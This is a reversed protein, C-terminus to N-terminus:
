GSVQTMHVLLARLNEAWEAITEPDFLDTSYEWNIRVDDGLAVVRVYLETRALGAVDVERVATSDLGDLKLEPPPTTVVTFLVPPFPREVLEPAVLGLVDVLPLDQHDLAAFLGASLDRVQQVFGGDGARFRVLVADGLMGVVREHDPRTRNASSTALVVDERDCRRCLWRAFATALVAYPTSGAEAALRSVGRVLEPPLVSEHTAGSGSLAPPRPRDAPLSPQVDVESLEARWFRTLEASREATLHARAWRAHDTHPVPALLDPERGARAAAYCEALEAWIVALSAGDCVIHHLVVVLVWSRPGRRGLRFRFLPAKDLAFPVAVIERCWHDVVDDDDHDSGAIPEVDLPIRFPALIEAVLDGGRDAVRMRLATHRHVLTEIARRLADTDLDGDLDVRHAVNYVTPNAQLGHRQWARRQAGSLPATDIVTDVITDSAGLHAALARITSHRFFDVMSCDKGLRDTIRNLLRVASLSHGGLAFFSRDVPVRTRGLDACWLEHLQRELPSEPEAGAVAMAAPDPLQDRDLKGNANVPLRDVVVWHNPVLQRPLVARLRQAVADADAGPELVAYAVLEPDGSPGTRAVVAADRVEPLEALAWETEGPEVRYGRIKVQDDRRGLFELTGDARWRGLDGTRYVRSGPRAPDAVFTAATEAPRGLYGDAVALGGLHIEGTAGVPVPRGADLVDVTVGDIPVGIPPRDAATPDVQQATVIISGETPGYQNVLACDPQHALFRRLAPTLVLPEGASVIMELDPLNPRSEMLYKLPTYPMFLREVRAARALEALAAPEHRVEEDVLVLSAGSALTSFIEQASVDFAPSTWQLTRLPRHQALQWRVVNAPGRHPVLVGKPRGTSGSTYICYALDDPGVSTSPRTAPGRAGAGPLSAATVVLKAGSDALVLDVRAEPLGPDIPLYAAGAKLVALLVTILDPGRDLRVAVLDGRRIGNALLWNALQNARDDLERYTVTSPGAVLATAEPTRDVQDEVLRHLCAPADRVEGRWRALDTRDADTPRTLESLPVAPEGTARRLVAELNALLRRVTGETFLDTDYEVAIRLGGVHRTLYLSLDFPARDAPVDLIAAALRPPDFEVSSENEYEVMVGFLPNRGPDRNPNLIGVLEDFPVGRHEYADTTTNRVRRALDVFGPDGSLDVRLPITDLYLGVLDNAERPRNRLATGLVIDDQGGFRGLVAAIAGLVAMFMTVGSRQAVDRLREVVEGDLENSFGAGAGTRNAPRPRDTPLELTAAGALHARWFAVDDEGATPDPDAFDPLAPLDDPEAPWSRYYAALDRVLVATSSSDFVIHHASLFLLHEEASLRVLRAAVLPGTALDFVERGTTRLAERLADAETGRSGDVLPCDVTARPLVTRYPEGGEDRFVTRLAPQREVVRALAGRLAAEDLPGTFRIAKPEHYITQNPYLRDLFWIRRQASTLPARREATAVRLEDLTPLAALVRDTPVGFDVFCAIEDAGAARLEAVVAACSEKTGILARTGCYRRYAQGLLFDVDEAPTNELDIEVGLSTTVQDFLSLSSRLYGCFPEFAEARVRDLDEGVYTHVLVVVRGPGLGREARTSRYRAINEALQEVSQSMLNTVIGLDNEAARRYSDPNGVVAVYMPPREQLPRPYLRVDVEDGSGSTATVSEGAWLRRVTDLHTYMLDRHRGFNEPALVFDKAHWGSAVCLGVRGGSLNDVVSWEEAVRVPHHLPLVVSGAHLRIRETQTALAAALVSPNPFLAGFSHFHREPLWVAHFGRRDAFRAAETILRYKDTQDQDPYDGFFYLSFDCGGPEDTLVSRASASTSTPTAPAPPSGTPAPLPTAPASPPTAPAPRTAPAAPAPPPAVATSSKSLAALQESMLATVQDVMKEALALQRDVTAQLDGGGPQVPASATAPDPAREAQDPASPAPEPPAAAQPQADEVPQQRRPGILAALKAPTDADDFLHRIPVRVGVSEDLERTLNMLSLSDGGMEVFTRDPDVAALDTGLLRATMRRVDDLVGDEVVGAGVVGAEAVAPFRQKRFPYGPLPIRRGDMPLAGWNVDVGRGYMTGVAGLFAGQRPLTPLWRGRAGRRGLRTLGDAPGIEVVDSRDVTSMVRDFRVPERAQRCLYDVDVRHGAPLVRGDLGSIMPLLLPRLEVAQRALEAAAPEILSSHFARDAGLRVCAVRRAGALEVARAVADPPGSLACVDPANVAALETGSDAAIRGAVAEGANVVVMGGPETARMAAGRAATIRLGDVLSLAGAAYLAGYEGLSHGAVVAPEVGVSRWLEVLAAQFAFLAPQVDRVEDGRLQDLLGPLVNECEDLVARVVPFEPYLEAAMGARVADQGCFAFLLPAVPRDPSPEGMATELATDLAGALEAM